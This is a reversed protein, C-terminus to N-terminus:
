WNVNLRDFFSSRWKVCILKRLEGMLDSMSASKLMKHLTEALIFMVMRVAPPGSFLKNLLM